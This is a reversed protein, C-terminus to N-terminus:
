QAGRLYRYDARQPSHYQGPVRQARGDRVMALLVRRVTSNILVPDILSIQAPTLGDQAPLRAAVLMEMEKRTGGLEM